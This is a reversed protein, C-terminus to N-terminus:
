KICQWLSLKECWKQEENGMFVLQIYYLSEQHSKVNKITANKIEVLPRGSTSRKREDLAIKSM